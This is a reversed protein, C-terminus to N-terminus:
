KFVIKGVAIKTKALARDEKGVLYYDKGVAIGLRPMATPQDRNSFLTKRTYKGTAADLYVVVCESKGFRDVRQIKQGLQLVNGNKESDNFLIALMNKGALPLSGLGAYFPMNYSGFYSTGMSFGTGAYSSSSSSVERQNKPLVHLWSLQGSADMKSMLMDGCEYVDYTTTTTRSFSGNMGGSSFSTTTYMYHHYKEALIVIGNDDTYIFNRFRLYKSFGDEDDKLKDLKEREKRDQKSEDDNSDDDSVDSIMNTVLEKQSTSIVNGTAPDIRQVLMGNIEKAKKDNSYFAAVVLDKGPIQVVKSSILWKDSIDTNIEKILGGTNNYLQINYHQFELFKSKKKKGEAFDYVRGVMVTNGSVTYIVDELQFTKPEFANTIRITKGSRKMRSDFAEIAFMCKAKGTNTSVLIMQTSDSNYDFHVDLGDNKEEVALTTITQWDGALNGDTKNIEAAFVEMQLEKKSYHTALIYAKNQIFFFDEFEKGKLEKNFDNRYEETFSKDLKILTASERATAGIVFYSKLALHGEKVFVGTKDAYVVSLETSGKHMKFEESWTASATQAHLFPASLLLCACVIFSKM